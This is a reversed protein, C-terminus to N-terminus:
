VLRTATDYRLPLTLMMTEFTQLLLLRIAALPTRLWKYWVCPPTWKLLQRLTRNMPPPSSPGSPKIGDGLGRALFRLIEVVDADAATLHALRDDLYVVLQLFPDAAAPNKPFLRPEVHSELVLKCCLRAEDLALSTSTAYWRRLVGCWYSVDVVTYDGGQATELLERYTPLTESLLALQTEFPTRYWAANMVLLVLVISRLRPSLVATSLVDILEKIAHLMPLSLSPLAHLMSAVVKSGHTRVFHGRCRPSVRLGAILTHLCALASAETISTPDRVLGYLMATIGGLTLIASPLSVTRVPVTGPELWGDGNSRSVDFCARAVIACARADYAYVFRTKDPLGVNEYLWARLLPAGDRWHLQGVEADSLATGFLTPLWLRGQFSPFHPMTGICNHGDVLQATDPYPLSGSYVLAGDIYISIKDKFVMKKAHVLCFHTWHHEMHRRSPLPVVLKTFTGSSTHTALLLSDGDLLVTVGHGNSGRLSLLSMVPTGPEILIGTAFSYGKKTSSLAGAPAVIGAHPGHLVFVHRRISAAPDLETVLVGQLLQLLLGTFADGINAELADWLSYVDYPNTHAVLLDHLTRVVEALQATQDGPEAVLKKMLSLYTAVLAYPGALAPPDQIPGKSMSAHDIPRLADCRRRVLQGSVKIAQTRLGVDDEAQAAIDILLRVMDGEDGEARVAEAILDEM